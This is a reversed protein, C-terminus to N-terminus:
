KPVTVVAKCDRSNGARDWGRYTLTYVRGAGRGSREARLLGSTDSCGLTFGQIDRPFDGDGTGNDPENSEASLLVFQGPGSLSDALAVSVRVPVMKHNPPSLRRPDPVCLVSPATQDVKVRLTRATEVNGANDTAFFSITTEGDASVVFSASAGSVATSGIPQAGTASYTIQKVGSGGPDDLASLSVTGASNNWGAANPPPSVLASTTPAIGDALQFVGFLSLSTVRACIVHRATDVPSVTRDVWEGSEIHFLAPTSTFATGYDICAVVSGEFVATTTVEYHVPSSGVAYGTPPPPLPGTDSTLSTDGAATVREFTLQMPLAAAVEDVPRAPVSDGVPTAAAPPAWVQAGLRHTYSDPDGPADPVDIASDWTVVLNGSSDRSVGLTGVHEGPAPPPIVITDTGVRTGSREFRRAVFGRADEQWIALFGGSGDAALLPWTFASVPADSLTLEAGLSGDAAVIRGKISPPVGYCSPRTDLWAVVFAGGGLPAIAPSQRRLGWPRPVSVLIEGGQPLGLADFRRAVIDGRLVFTGPTSCGPDPGSYQGQSTWAVLSTGDRPDIATGPYVQNDTTYVNALSEPQLPTGDSGFRRFGIEYNTFDYDDWGVAFQGDFAMGVKLNTAGPPGPAGGSLTTQGGIRGGNRDFRQGFVDFFFETDNPRGAWVVLYDGQADAAVHSYGQFPTTITNVLVPESDLSQGSPGFRRAKVGLVPTPPFDSWVVMFAGDTPTVAVRPDVQFVLDTWAPQVAIPAGVRILEQAVAPGASAILIVSALAGAVHAGASVLLRVFRSWRAKTQSLLPLPNMAAMTGEM